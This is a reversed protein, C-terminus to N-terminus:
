SVSNWFSWLYDIAHWHIVTGQLAGEFNEEVVELFWINIGQRPSDHLWPILTVVYLVKCIQRRIDQVAAMATYNWTQKINRVTYFNTLWYIKDRKWRRLCCNQIFVDHLHACAIDRMKQWFDSEPTNCVHTCTQFNTQASFFRFAAPMIMKFGKDWYRVDFWLTPPLTCKHLKMHFLISIRIYRIWGKSCTITGAPSQKSTIHRDSKGISAIQTRVKNDIAIRIVAQLWENTRCWQEWM